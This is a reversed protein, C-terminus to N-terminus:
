HHPQAHGDGGRRRFYILLLTGGLVAAAIDLWSTYNWSIMAHQVASPPRPGTPILGFASFILDVIIGSMVMAAYFIVTIYITARGGYYKGYIFILPIVLLDAYIFSIVGGFSIGNSWLHSALPINGVSCVFSLIAIIPGVLTNEILRLTLQSRDALVFGAVM